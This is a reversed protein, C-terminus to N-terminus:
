YMWKRILTQGFRKALLVEAQEDGDDRGQAVAHSRCLSMLALADLYDGTDDFMRTLLPSSDHDLYWVSGDRRDFCWLNGNGLYDGFVVLESLQAMLGQAQQSASMEVIDAIGPFVVQVTGIADMDADPALLDFRPSLLREAWDLVGLQLLYDRLPQPLNCGLRWECLRLEARSFPQVSAPEEDMWAHAQLGHHWYTLRQDFSADTPPWYPEPVDAEDWVAHSEVFRQSRGFEAQLFRSWAQADFPSPWHMQALVAVPIWPVYGMRPVENADRAVFRLASQTLLDASPSRHPADLQATADAPLDVWDSLALEPLAQVLAPLDKFIRM